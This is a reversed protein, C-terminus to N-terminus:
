TLLRRKASAIWHTTVRQYYPAQSSKGSQVKYFGVLLEDEAAHHKAPWCRFDQPAKFFKPKM